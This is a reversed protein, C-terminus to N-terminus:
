VERTTRFYKRKTRQYRIEVLIILGILVVFGVVKVWVTEPTIFQNIQKSFFYMLGNGLVSGLLVGFVTLGRSMGLLRGLISGGVSGTTSTPFIVFLVLGIFAMRKLRPYTDMLFKGDWVLAAIKKGVIPLRFLIGMHFAVFIASAVDMYTLLLFIEEPKMTAQSALEGEMGVLIIFRGLIFFALGAHYIANRPYEWGATLGLVVLLAISVVFPGALTTIWLVPYNKRFSTEFRTFSNLLQQQLSEPDAATLKDIPLEGAKHDLVEIM